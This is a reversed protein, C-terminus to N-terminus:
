FNRATAAYKMDALEKMRLNWADTSREHAREPAYMMSMERDIAAPDVPPPTYSQQNPMAPGRNVNNGMGQMYKDYPNGIEEQKGQLYPMLIEEDLMNPDRLFRQFLEPGGHEHINEALSDLVGDVNEAGYNKIVSQVFQGMKGAYEQYTESDPFRQMQEMSMNVFNAKASEDAGELTSAVNHAYDVDERDLGEALRYDVGKLEGQGQQQQPPLGTQQQQQQYQPPQQGQQYQPSQPPQPPQGQQYQMQQQQQVQPPQFQPPQQMQGQQRPLFDVTPPPVNLGANLQNQYAEQAIREPSNNGYQGMGNAIPPPPQVAPIGLQVNPHGGGQGGQYVPVQQQIPAQPAQSVPNMTPQQQAQNQQLQQAFLSM